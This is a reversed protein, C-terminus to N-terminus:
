PWPAPAAGPPAAPRGARQGLLASGHSPGAASCGPGGTGDRRDPYARGAPRHLVGGGAPGLGPRRPPLLRHLRVPDSRGRGPHRPPLGPRVLRGPCPLPARGAPLVHARGAVRRGPFPLPLPCGVAEGRLQHGHGAARLGVDLVGGGPRGSLHGGGGRRYQRHRHHLGPRHEPGPPLLDGPGSPGPTSCPAWLPPCGCGSGSCPFFGCGLSLLLGTLLFLGLLWPDWLADAAGHPSVLM